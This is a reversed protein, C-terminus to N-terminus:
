SDGARSPKRKRPWECVVGVLGLEYDVEVLALTLHRRNAEIWDVTVTRPANEDRPTYERHRIKVPSPIMPAGEVV